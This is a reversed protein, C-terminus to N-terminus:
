ITVHHKVTASNGFLPFFIVSSLCTVCCCLGVIAVEVPMRTFVLYIFEVLSVDKFLIGGAACIGKMELVRPSVPTYLHLAHLHVTTTETASTPGNLRALAQLNETTVGVSDHCHQHM